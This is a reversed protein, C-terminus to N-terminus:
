GRQHPSELMEVLADGHCASPKCWCGLRVEGGHWETGVIVRRLMAVDDPRGAIWARYKEIVEARTGDKGIKYPNGYPTRRDIRVDCEEDRLNVVRCRVETEAGM